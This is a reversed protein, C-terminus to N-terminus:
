AKGFFLDDLTQQLERADEPLPDSAQDPAPERDLLLLQQVAQLVEPDECRLIERVLMLKLSKHDM